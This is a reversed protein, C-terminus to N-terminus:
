IGNKGGSNYINSKFNTENKNEAGAVSCKMREDNRCLHSSLCKRHLVGNKDTTSMVVVDTGLNSCYKGSIDGDIKKDM